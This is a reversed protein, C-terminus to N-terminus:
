KCVVPFSSASEILRSQVPIQINGMASLKDEEKINLYGYTTNINKHRALAKLMFPDKDTRYQKDIFYRRFAHATLKRSLGAEKVIKKLNDNIVNKDIRKGGKGRILAGEKINFSNIYNRIMDKLQNDMPMDADDGNKTKNLLIQNHAFDIDECNLNILERLRLGTKIYISFITYFLIRDEEKKYIHNLTAFFIEIDTDNPIFQQVSVKKPIKICKSVDENLYGAKFLFVMFDRIIIYNRRKTRPGWKKDKRKLYDIASERSINPYIFSLFNLLVSQYNKITNDSIDLKSNLYEMVLDEKEVENLAKRNNISKFKLIYAYFESLSLQNLEKFESNILNILTNRSEM